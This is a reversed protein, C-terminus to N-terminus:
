GHPKPGDYVFLGQGQSVARRAIAVIEDVLREWNDIAAYEDPDFNDASRLATLWAQAIPRVPDLSVLSACFAQPVASLLWGYSPPAFLAPVFGETIPTPLVRAFDVLDAQRIPRISVHVFPELNPCSLEAPWPGDPERTDVVWPEGSERFMAENTFPNHLHRRVPQQLPPLWGPFAAPLATPPAVFLESVLEMGRFDALQILAV